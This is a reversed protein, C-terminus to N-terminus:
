FGDSDGLAIAVAYTFCDLLDMGHPTKTGMRFGCVQSLLHNKSLGRFNVIKNLATKSIKVREQHVYSSVNLARGEKGMATLNGQIPQADLGHRQAQQLLVTGSGKDEIWAGISGDRAVAVRALHELHALQHPLWDELM